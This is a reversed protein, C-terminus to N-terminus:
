LRVMLDSARARIRELEPLMEQMDIRSGGRARIQM